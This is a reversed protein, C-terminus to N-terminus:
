GERVDEPVKHEISDEMSQLIMADAEGKVAIHPINTEDVEPVDDGESARFPGTLAEWVTLSPSGTHPAM